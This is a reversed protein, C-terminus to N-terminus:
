NAQRKKAQKLLTKTKADLGKNKSPWFERIQEEKVLLSAYDPIDEIAKDGLGNRPKIAVRWLTRNDLQVELYTSKWFDPLIDEYELQDSRRGRITLEGKEARMRFATETLHMKDRENLSRGNNALNQADQWRMWASFTAIWHLAFHVAWDDSTAPAKYHTILAKLKPWGIVASGGIVGIVVLTTRIVDHNVYTALHSLWVSWKTIDDPLGALGVITLFASIVFLALRIGKM